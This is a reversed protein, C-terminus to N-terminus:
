ELVMAKTPRYTRILIGLGNACLLGVDYEYYRDGNQYVTSFLGSWIREKPAEPGKHFTFLQRKRDTDVDHDHCGLAPCKEANSSRICLFLRLNALKFRSDHANTKLPSTHMVICIVDSVGLYEATWKAIGQPCPLTQSVSLRNCIIDKHRVEGWYINTQESRNTTYRFSRDYM